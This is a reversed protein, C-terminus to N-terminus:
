NPCNRKVCMNGIINKGSGGNLETKVRRVCETICTCLIRERWIATDRLMGVQREKIGDAKRRIGTVTNDDKTGSM